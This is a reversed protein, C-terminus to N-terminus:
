KGPSYRIQRLEKERPGYFEIAKQWAGTWVLCLAYDAQLHGDDPMGKLAQELLPLAEDNRGAQIKKLAEQYDAKAQAVPDTPTQSEPPNAFVPISLFLLALVLATIGARIPM